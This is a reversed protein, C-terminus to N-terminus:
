LRCSTWWINELYMNDIDNHVIWGHINWKHKAEYFTLDVSKERTVQALKELWKTWKFLIASKKAISEIAVMLQKTVLM